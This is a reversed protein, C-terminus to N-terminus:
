WVGQEWVEQDGTGVGGTGVDGTGWVEQDGTGM